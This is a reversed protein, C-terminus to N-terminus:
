RPARELSKLLADQAAERQPDRGGSYPIPRAVPLTPEVGRGELREGDVECDAVALYLVSHDDLFRLAGALVAGATKEGVLPGRAQRRFGWAFVEKGRREPHNILLATPRRWAASFETSAGERPKTVLQPIARDFLSLYEPSAGGYGDRLDLILADVDRWEESRLIAALEDQYTQGAYSWIHVYGIQHAGCTTIHASGRLAEHFMTQGALYRPRVTLQRPAGDRERQITVDIPKDEYEVFSHIPHFPNGQVSLLRDGVCLGAQAAPLGDYVSLVFAGEETVLTDIGIGVFGIQDRGTKGRAAAIEDAYAGSPEFVGLIEYYQPMEPVFYKTHSSQLTALMRNVVAAFAERDTAEAAERRFQAGVAQWDLGRLNADFFDTAVIKHIQDFRAAFDPSEALGRCPACWILGLLILRLDCLLRIRHNWM